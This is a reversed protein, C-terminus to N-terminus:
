RRCFLHQFQNFLIEAGMVLTGLPVIINSQQTKNEKSTLMPYVFFCFEIWVSPIRSKRIPSKVGVNKQHRGNFKEM